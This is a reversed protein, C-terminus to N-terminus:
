LARFKRMRKRVETMTEIDTESVEAALKEYAKKHRAVQKNAALEVASNGMNAVDELNRLVGYYALVGLLIVVLLVFGIDM